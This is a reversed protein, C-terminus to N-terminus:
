VTQCCCNGAALAPAIKWSFLYLPLNWPSICGVVGIPDRHTYNIAKDSMAHAGTAYHLIATAYFRFNSAARPIDVSKALWVPKGNDKSEAEALMTLNKEIGDVIRMMIASREDVSMTSWAPFADRAAEYALQIDKDGSDPILSYVNGTSPNVNDIYAMSEPAVLQGNIYNDIKQM